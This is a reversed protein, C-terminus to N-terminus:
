HALSRSNQITACRGSALGPNQRFSIRLGTDNGQFEMRMASAQQSFQNGRFINFHDVGVQM